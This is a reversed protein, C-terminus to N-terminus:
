NPSRGLLEPTIVKNEKIFEIFADTILNYTDYFETGKTKFISYGDGGAALFDNTAVTYTRDPDFPRGGISIISVSDSEVKYDVGFTHLKGGSGPETNVSKQLLEVIDTGRMKLTVVTNPFPLATYVQEPTIVGVNISGRISGGNVIGIEAGVQKAALRAILAGFNSHESRVESRSGELYVETTGIPVQLDTRLKQTQSEIIAKIEPDEQVGKDLLILKGTHSVAKGDRIDVDIKGVYKAYAGAQGIITGNTVRPEYIATHSHGGIILGIRPCAKALETDKDIGIHTLAIIFEDKPRKEAFKCATTVPDDFELDAINKPHTTVPTDQTTLGVVLAKQNTGPFSLELSDKFPREGNKARINASLLPFKMNPLLNNVLNDTGYDFEHNGIVMATLNLRNLQDVGLRGKFVMSYPTGTLLDGALFFLVHRGHAEAKEKEAKIVAAAKAFGGIPQDYGKEKYATYHAHPDNMHLITLKLEDASSHAAAFFLLTLAYIIRAITNTM